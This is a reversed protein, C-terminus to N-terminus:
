SIFRPYDTIIGSVGQDVLRDVAPKTNVTWVNLALGKKKAFAILKEDVFEATPHLCDPHVWYMCWKLHMNESDIIYGTPIDKQLFKVIWVIIPNFSSVIVKQKIKGAQILRVVARATRPDFIKHTKIEINIRLNEPLAKSVDELLYLRDTKNPHSRVGAHVFSLDEWDSDPIFGSGDTERELDINHSCVVKGDRTGIVDIEIGKFGADMAAVYSSLTNEPADHLSGRHGIYMPTDTYFDKPFVPKWSFLVWLIVILIGVCLILFINM